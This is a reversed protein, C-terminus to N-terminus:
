FAIRLTTLATIVTESEVTAATTVAIRTVKAEIGSPM